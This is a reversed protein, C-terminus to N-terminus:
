WDFFLSSFFRQFKKNLGSRDIAKDVWLKNLLIPSGLPVSVKRLRSLIVNVGNLKGWLHWRPFLAIEERRRGHSLQIKESPGLDRWIWVIYCFERRRFNDSLSGFINRRERLFQRGFCCPISLLSFPPASVRLKLNRCLNITGPNKLAFFILNLRM